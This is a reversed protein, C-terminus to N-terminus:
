QKFNITNEQHRDKEISAMLDSAEKFDPKLNVARKLLRLAHIEDSLTGHAILSAYLYQSKAILEKMEDSWTNENSNNAENLIKSLISKAEEKKVAKNFHEALKYQETLQTFLVSPVPKTAYSRLSRLAMFSYKRM